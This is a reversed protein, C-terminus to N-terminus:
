NFVIVYGKLYKCKFNHACLSFNNNYFYSKYIINFIVYKSKNLNLLLNNNDFWVKVSSM